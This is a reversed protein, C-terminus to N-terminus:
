VRHPHPLILRLGPEPPEVWRLTGDDAARGIRRVPTIGHLSSLAWCPTRPLDALTVPAVVAPIGSAALALEETVSPLRRVDPRVVAGDREWLLTANAAEVVRGTTDCLLADDAGQAVARNRREALWPLDPGKLEPYARADWEAAVALTTSHRLAPASRLVVTLSGDRHAELRPFWRGPRRCAERVRREFSPPVDRGVLTRCGERFRRLHLDLGRCAGDVVLWSDVILPSLGAGRDGSASPM